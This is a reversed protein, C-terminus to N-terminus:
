IVYLYWIGFKYLTIYKKLINNYLTYTYHFFFKISVFNYTTPLNRVSVLIEKFSETIVLPTNVTGIVLLENSLAM